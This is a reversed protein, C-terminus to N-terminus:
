REPLDVTERIMEDAARLVRLQASFARQAVLVDMMAGPLDCAAGNAAPGAPASADGPAAPAEPLGATAIAAAARDMRRMSTMMGGLASSQASDPFAM